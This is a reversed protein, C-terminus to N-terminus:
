AFLRNANRRLTEAERNAAAIREQHAEIRLALKRAGEALSENSHAVSKAGSALFDSNHAVSKARSALSECSGAVSKAGAAVLEGECNMESVTAALQEIRTLYEEIAEASITVSNDPNRM